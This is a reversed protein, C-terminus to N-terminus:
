VSGRAVGLNTATAQANQLTNEAEVVSIETGIGTEYQARTYDLSQQDAKITEAYVAELADQGRLQFFYSALSAQETLRENELEAASVQAAYQDARITNRVKGWIDPAWSAEVAPIALVSSQGVGTPAITSTGTTSTAGSGSTTQLNSSAQGAAYSPGISVTPYLQSRAQAIITRAEMFNYFYQKITQNNINLQDELANLEPDNYIEWWKGRLMADGPQAVKWGDTGAPFQTPSEKYSAPPAQATAPPVQYKPGVRCGALLVAAAAGVVPFSQRLKTAIKM